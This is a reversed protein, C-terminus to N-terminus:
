KRADNNSRKCTCGDTEPWSTHILMYDWDPCFHWGTTDVNAPLKGNLHALTYWYPTPAPDTM